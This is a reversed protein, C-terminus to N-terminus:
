YGEVTATALTGAGTLPTSVRLRIWSYAGVTLHVAKVVGASADVANVTTIPAWTGPTDVTPAEEITIVGGSLVGVGVFYFTLYRLRSADMPAPTAGIEITGHISM